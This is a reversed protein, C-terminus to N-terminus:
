FSGFGEILQEPKLDVLMPLTSCKKDRYRYPLLTKVQAAPSM